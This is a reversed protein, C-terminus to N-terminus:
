IIFCHIVIAGRHMNKVSSHPYRVLKSVSSTTHVLLRDEYAADKVRSKDWLAEARKRMQQRRILPCSTLSVRAM